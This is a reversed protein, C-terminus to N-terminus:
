AGSQSATIACIVFRGASRSLGISTAVTSIIEWPRAWADSGIQGPPNSRLIPVLPHPVQLLRVLELLAVRALLEISRVVESLMELVAMRSRAALPRIHQLICAHKLLVRCWPSFDGLM